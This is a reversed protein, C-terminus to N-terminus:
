PQYNFVVAIAIVRHEKQHKNCVTNETLYNKNCSIMDTIQVPLSCHCQWYLQSYVRQQVESLHMM